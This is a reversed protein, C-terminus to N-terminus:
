RDSFTSLTHVSSPKSLSLSLGCEMAAEARWYTPASSSLARSLMSRAAVPRDYFREPCSGPSARLAASTRRAGSARRRAAGSPVAAVRVVARTRVVHRCICRRGDVRRPTSCGAPPERSARGLYYAFLYMSSAQAKANGARRGVWSSVISHGGFFGFTVV